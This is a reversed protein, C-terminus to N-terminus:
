PTVGYYDSVLAAGRGTLALAWRNGKWESTILGARMARNVSAYGFRTGPSSTEAYPACFEAAPLKACGPHRGVYWAAMMMKEGVRPGALKTM